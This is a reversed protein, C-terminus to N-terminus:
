STILPDYESNQIRILLRITTSIRLKFRSHRQQQTCCTAHANGTCGLDGGSPSSLLVCLSLNTSRLIRLGRAAVARSSTGSVTSQLTWNCRRCIPVASSLATILLLKTATNSWKMRIYNVRRDSGSPGRCTFIMTPVEYQWQAIRSLLRPIPSSSSSSFQFLSSVKWADQHRVLHLTRIGHTLM